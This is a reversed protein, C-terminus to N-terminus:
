TVPNYFLQTVIVHLQKLFYSINSYLKLPLISNVALKEELSLDGTEAICHELGWNEGLGLSM